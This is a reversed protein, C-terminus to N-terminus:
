GDHLRSWNLEGGAAFHDAAIMLLARRPDRNRRLSARLDLAIGNVHIGHELLPLLIPESSVEVVRTVGDAIALKITEWFRVRGRLSAAWYDGGADRGDIKRGTSSSYFAIRATSPELDALAHALKDAYPAMLRSHGATNALANATHGHREFITCLAAVTERAGSIVISRPGNVAAIDIDLGSERLIENFQAEDVGIAAMAGNGEAPISLTSRAALVRCADGLSFVGAVYAAAIEGCSHGVVADPDLGWDRLLAVVGTQVLFEVPQTFALSHPRPTEEPAFAALYDYDPAWTALARAGADVADRFVPEHEYLQRAAGGHVSGFGSFVWLSKAKAAGSTIVVSPHPEADCVAKLRAALEPANNAVIACRSSGAQSARAANAAIEAIPRDPRRQALASLAGATRKLSIEDNGAIAFLHARARELDGNRM